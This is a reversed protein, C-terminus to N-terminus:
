KASRRQSTRSLERETEDSSIGTTSEALRLRLQELVATSEALVQRVESAIQDNRFLAETNRDITDSQDKALRSMFQREDDRSARLYTLFHVVLYVVVGLAPVQLLMNAFVEPNM